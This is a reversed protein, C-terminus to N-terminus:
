FKTSWTYSKLKAYEIQGVGIELLDIVSKVYKRCLKPHLKDSPVVWNGDKCVTIDNKRMELEINDWFQHDYSTINMDIPYSHTTQTQTILQKYKQTQYTDDEYKVVIFSATYYDSERSRLKNM